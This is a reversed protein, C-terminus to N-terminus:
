TGEGVRLEIQARMRLEGALADVAAQVRERVVMGRIWEAARADLEHVEGGHRETVTVIHFGFQTQFVGSIEGVELAFAADSLPKVWFGRRAAGLDGGVGATQCDSAERALEAFDEGARARSLLAEARQRAAALSEPLASRPTAMLIHSARVRTTDFAEPHAAYYAGIQEGSVTITDRIETTVFRQVLEDMLLSGQVREPTLHSAALKADRDERGAFNSEWAAIIADAVSDPVAIGRRRAERSLLHQDIIQDLAKLQLEKTTAAVESEAAGSQVWYRSILDLEALLIKRGEVVAVVAGPDGVIESGTDHFIGGEQEGGCSLLALLLGLSARRGAHWGRLMKFGGKGARAGAGFQGPGRLLRM